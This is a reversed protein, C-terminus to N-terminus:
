YNNFMNKFQDVLEKDAKTLEGDLYEYSIHHFLEHSKVVVNGKDDEVYYIEATGDENRHYGSENNTTSEIIGEISGKELYENYLENLM